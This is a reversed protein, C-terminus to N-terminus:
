QPDGRTTLQSPSADAVPDILIEEWYRLVRGMRIAPQEVRENRLFCRVAMEVDNFGFLARVSTTGSFRANVEFCVPGSDTMRFQFNAAGLAGMAEGWQRLATTLLHSTVPEIRYSTGQLLERRMVIWAAVEGPKPAFVSGTYEQEDSGVYSQIIGLEGLKGTEVELERLHHVVRVGRSAYGFRPKVVVPFGYLDLLREIGPQDNALLTAPHPLGTQAFWRSTLWKDHCREVVQRDATLIRASTDRELQDRLQAIALTEADAGVFVLDIGEQILIRTFVKSFHPDTAAPVVYGKDVVFLGMSQPNCDTAVVYRALRSMSLAKLIGQGVNGGVGTVLIRGTGEPVGGWQPINKIM